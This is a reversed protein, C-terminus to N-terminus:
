TRQYCCLKGILLSKLQQSKSEFKLNVNKSLLMALWEAPSYITTIQKWVKSKREKIVVSKLFSLVEIENHNAKM